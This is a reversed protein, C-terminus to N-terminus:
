IGVYCSKKEGPSDTKTANGDQQALITEAHCVLVLM